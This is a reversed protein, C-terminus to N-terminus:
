KKEYVIEKYIRNLGNKDLFNKNNMKSLASFYNEIIKIIKEEKMEFNFTKILKKKNLYKIQDDQNKHSSIVLPFINSSIAELLTTGGCCVLFEIKSYLKQMKLFKSVIKINRFKNNKIAIKNNSLKGLLIQFQIHKLKIKKILKIFKGTFNYKDSGGFFVLCFNQYKKKKDTVYSYPFYKLGVLYKIGKKKNKILKINPITFNIYIKCNHKKNKFDDLIILNKFYKIIKNDWSNNLNYNDKFIYIKEKLQTKKIKSIVEKADELNSKCNKIELIQYRNLNIKKLNNKSSKTIILFIEFNKKYFYDAIRLCRIAHGTGISKNIEFRFFIM